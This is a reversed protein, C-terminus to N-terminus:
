KYGDAEQLASDREANANRLSRQAQQLESHMEVEREEVQQLQTLLENNYDVQSSLEQALSEINMQIEEGGGEMNSKLPSSRNGRSRSPTSQGTPSSRSSSSRHSREMLAQIERKKRNVFLNM